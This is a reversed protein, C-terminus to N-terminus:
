ESFYLTALAEPTASAHEPFLGLGNNASAPAKLGKGPDAKWNFTARQNVVVNWLIAAATYTPEVSHNEGATTTSAPDGEDCAQPTVSTATGAASYRQVTWQIQNDAASGTCGVILEYIEPRVATTATIGLISDAASTTVTQTGDVSYNRM